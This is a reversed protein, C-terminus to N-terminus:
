NNKKNFLRPFSTRVSRLFLSPFVACWRRLNPTTISNRDLFLKLHVLDIQNQRTQHLAKQWTPSNNVVDQRVFLLINQRYWSTVTTDNWIQPRIVDILQHGCMKFHSVWYSQWQENLHCFGGQGPVAASFLVVPSLSTLTTVFLDAVTEPLHEAVELSIALDFTRGLDIPKILDLKKFCNQPIQLLSPDVHNGDIGFVDEISYQRCVDLWTGVGCGIDVVSQPKIYEFVLELIRQASSRTIQDRQEYFFGMNQKYASAM